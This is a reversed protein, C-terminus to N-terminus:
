AGHKMVKVEVVPKDPDNTRISIAEGAAPVYKTPWRVEIRDGQAGVPKWSTQISLTSATVETVRGKGTRGPRVLLYAIGNTNASIDLMSPIVTTREPQVSAVVPVNYEGLDRVTMVLTDSVSQIDDPLPTRTSVKVRTARGNERVLEAIFNTGSLSAQEITDKRGATSVISVERSVSERAPVAGFYLIPPKIEVPLEIRGDFGLLLSLRAWEGQGRVVFRKELEGRRDKVSLLAPIDVSGGAEIVNNTLNIVACGCGSSDIGIQIPADGTNRVKFVHQVAVTDQTLVGFRYIPEDCSIRPQVAWANGM